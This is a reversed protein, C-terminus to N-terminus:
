QRGGGTSTWARQAVLSNPLPAGDSTLIMFDTIRYENKDYDRRGLAGIKLADVTVVSSRDVEEGEANRVVFVFPKDRDPGGVREGFSRLHFRGCSNEVVDFECVADVHPAQPEPSDRQESAAATEQWRFSFPRLEARAETANEGETVSAHALFWQALEPHRRAHSDWMALCLAQWEGLRAKPKMEFYGQKWRYESPFWFQNLPHFARIFRARIDVPSDGLHPPSAAFIHCLKWRGGRVGRWRETPRSADGNGWEKWLAEDEGRSPAMSIPITQSAMAERLNVPARGDAHQRWFWVAPENDGVVFQISAGDARSSELKGAKTYGKFARVILTSARDAADVVAEHALRAAASDLTTAIGLKELWADLTGEFAEPCRVLPRRPAHGGDPPRSQNM